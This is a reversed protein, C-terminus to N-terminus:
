RTLTGHSTLSALIIPGSMYKGYGHLCVCVCVFPGSQGVADGRATKHSESKSEKGEMVGVGCGGEHRKKM